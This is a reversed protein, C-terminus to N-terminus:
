PASHITYIKLTLNHSSMHKHDTIIPAVIYSVKYVFLVQVNDFVANVPGYIKSV